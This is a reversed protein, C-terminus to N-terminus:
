TAFSGRRLMAMYGDVNLQPRVRVMVPSLQAWWLALKDPTIEDWSDVVVIPLGMDRLDTYAAYESEVIPITGMLMAELLKPSQVGNGSPSIMFRHKALEDFWQNFAVTKHVLWPASTKAVFAQARTRSKVYDVEWMAGWAALVTESKDALLQHAQTTDQMNFVRAALSKMNWCPANHEQGCRRHPYEEYMETFGIPFTKIQDHQVDKAEYYIKDFWDAVEDIPGLVTSLHFDEGAIVLIRSKSRPALTSLKDRLMHLEKNQPRVWVTEPDSIDNYFEVIPQDRLGGFDARPYQIMWDFRKFLEPMPVAPVSTGATGMGGRARFRSIPLFSLSAYTALVASESDAANVSMIASYNGARLFDAANESINTSYNGAHLFDAALVAHDEKNANTAVTQVLGLADESEHTHTHTRTPTHTALVNGALAFLLLQQGVLM